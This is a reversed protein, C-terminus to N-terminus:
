HTGFLFLLVQDFRESWAQENHGAGEVELYQYDIGERLGVRMMIAELFRAALLNKDLGMGAGEATGMDVWLKTRKMWDHDSEFARLMKFNDWWLSPSICGCKSFVDNHKWALHLSILGGLSSGAVATHERDPLTRYTRDIFPKVEEILFHEYQEGQGGEEVLTGTRTTASRTPTYENVRAPGNNEIGVIIIPEIRKETILRMATEDARWEGAFSTSADFLNQGDHMYLVPYRQGPDSEYEPPLWVILTRNNALIRSHFDRHYRVDGVTTSEQPQTTTPERWNAVTIRETKDNDLVLVRNAIERGLSSKEVTSWSGRNAKYELKAGRPLDVSATYDGNAQRKLPIGQANWGGMADLNGSLYVADAEATEEPVAVVFKVKVTKSAVRKVDEGRSCSSDITLMGSLLIALLLTPFRRM